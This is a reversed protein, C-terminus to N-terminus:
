SASSGSATATRRRSKPRPGVVLIMEGKRPRQSITELIERSTGRLVEEHLKTLERCLAVDRDGLVQVMVELTRKIRHPTEFLVQTRADESVERLLRERRGSTRPIFGHFVFRDSTFGAALLAAIPASPGPIVRLPVGSQVAGQVLHYGPDSILPSGADTVLAVKRGQRMEGLLEPARTRENHEHYSVLRGELGHASLLARTRRTDEAAIIDAKQLVQLARLTIDQLNGLPTAV